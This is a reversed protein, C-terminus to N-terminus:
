IYVHKQNEGMFTRWMVHLDVRKDYWFIIKKGSKGPIPKVPIREM